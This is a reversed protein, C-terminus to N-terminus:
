KVYIWSWETSICDVVNRGGSLKGTVHSVYHLYASFLYIIAYYRIVETQVSVFAQQKSSITCTSLFKEMCEFVQIFRKSLMTIYKHLDMLM